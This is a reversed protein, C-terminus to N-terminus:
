WAGAALALGGVIVALATFARPKRRPPGDPDGGDLEDPGGPGSREGPTPILREDHTTSTM